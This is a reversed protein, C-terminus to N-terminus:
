QVVASDQDQEGQSEVIVVVTSGAWESLVPYILEEGHSEEILVGGVELRITYPPEADTEARLNMGPSLPKNQITVHIPM